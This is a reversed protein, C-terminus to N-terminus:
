GHEYIMLWAMDYRYAINSDIITDTLCDTKKVDNKFTELIYKIFGESLFTKLSSYSVVKM